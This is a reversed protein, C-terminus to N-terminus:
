FVYLKGSHDSNLEGIQENAIENNSKYNIISLTYTFNGTSYDYMRVKYVTCYVILRMAPMPVRRPSTCGVKSTHFAISPVTVQTGALAKVILVTDM